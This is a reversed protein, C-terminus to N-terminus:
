KEKPAATEKEPPTTPSGPVPLLLNMGKGDMNTWLTGAGSHFLRLMLKPNLKEALSYRLFAGGDNQFVQLKM